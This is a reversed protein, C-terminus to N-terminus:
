RTEVCTPRAGERCQKCTSCDFVVLADTCVADFCITGSQRGRRLYCDRPASPRKRLVGKSLICTRCLYSM